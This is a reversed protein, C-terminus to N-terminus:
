VINHFSPKSTITKIKKIKERNSNRLIRDWPISINFIKLITQIQEASLNPCGYENKCLYRIASSVKSNHYKSAFKEIQTFAGTIMLYKKRENGLYIPGCRNEVYKQYEKFSIIKKRKKVNLIDEKIMNPNFGIIQILGYKGGILIGHISKKWGIIKIKLNNTIIKADSDKFAILIEDGENNCLYGTCGLSYDSINKRGFWKKKSLSKVYGELEIENKLHKAESITVLSM